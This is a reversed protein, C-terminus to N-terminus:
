LLLDFFLGSFPGLGLGYVCLLSVCSLMLLWCVHHSKSTLLPPAGPSRMLFLRGKPSPMSEYTVLEPLALYLPYSYRVLKPNLISM